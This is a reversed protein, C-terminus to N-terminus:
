KDQRLRWTLSTVFAAIGSLVFIYLLLFFLFEGYDELSNFPNQTLYPESIIGILFIPIFLTLFRKWFFSKYSENLSLSM